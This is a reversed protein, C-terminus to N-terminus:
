LLLTGIVYPLLLLINRHDERQLWAQKAAGWAVSHQTLCNLSHRQQDHSGYCVDYVPHSLCYSNIKESNHLSSTWPWLSLMTPNGHSGGKPNSLQRRVTGGSPLSLDLPSISPSLFTPLSLCLSLDWWLTTKFFSIHLFARWWSKSSSKEELPVFFWVTNVLSLCLLTM